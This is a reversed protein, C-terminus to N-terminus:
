EVQVMYGIINNQCKMRWKGGLAKVFRHLVSKCLQGKYKENSIKSTAEKRYNRQM